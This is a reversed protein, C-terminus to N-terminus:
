NQFVADAWRRAQECTALPRPAQDDPREYLGAVIVLSRGRREALFPGAQPREQCLEGADAKTRATQASVDEDPRPQASWGRRFVGRLFAVHMREASAEDDAVVRWVLARREEAGFLVIRDGAWGTASAAASRAPMWEEFLLRLSQEGWVDHLLVPWPAGTAGVNPGPPVGVPEAAEASDYKDLHLLQETTAPPRQWVEDIGAWGRQRRVENVFRLGDVYPSILSRKLIGPVATSDHSSGTMLRMQAEMLDTPLEHAVQGTEALMADLMASTADGEALASLASLEDTADDRWELIRALGYHQDQLAHVLEHLLTAELADDDMDARLFMTKREPDYLGALDTGMLSLLSTRYDFDPPVTGLGFLMEATGEVARPPVHRELSGEVERVLEAASLHRAEVPGKPALRRLESIRKLAADVLAQAEADAAPERAKAEAPTSGAGHPSAASPDPTASQRETGGCAMAAACLLIAGGRRTDARLRAFRM